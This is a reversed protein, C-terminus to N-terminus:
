RSLRALHAAAADIENESYVAIGAALLAEAAVGKGPIRTRTFTGDGIVSSGCSPSGEKLIAIAANHQRAAAVALAAGRAFEATVDAGDHTLVRLGIREAPPRPVALGGAVEPCFSVVRGEATWRALAPDRVTKAEGNYRVPEGLLCASVLVRIV